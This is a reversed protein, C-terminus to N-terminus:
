FIAYGGDIMFTDGTHYASADGTLCGAAMARRELTCGSECVV